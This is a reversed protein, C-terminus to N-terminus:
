VFSQGRRAAELCLRQSADADLIHFTDEPAQAADLDREDLLPSAPPLPEVGALAGVLPHRAALGANEGRAQDTGGKHFSRLTLSTSRDLKWGPLLVSEVSRFYDALDLADPEAPLPLRLRMDDRGFRAALAPNLAPPEDVGQLTFPSSLSPRSLR